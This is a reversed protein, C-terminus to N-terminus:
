FECVPKEREATIMQWVTLGFFILIGGYLLNRATHINALSNQPVEGLPNPWMTCVVATVAAIVGIFFCVTYVTNNLIADRHGKLQALVEQNPPACYGRCEPYRCVIHKMNAQTLDITMVEGCESCFIIAHVPDLALPNGKADKAKGMGFLLVDIAWLLVALGLIGTGVFLVTPSERGSTLPFRDVYSLLAMPLRQEGLEGMVGTIMRQRVKYVAERRVTELDPTSFPVVIRKATDPTIRDYADLDAAEADPAPPEEVAIGEPLEAYPVGDPNREAGVERPTKEYGLKKAVESKPIAETEALGEWFARNMAEFEEVEQPTPFPKLLLRYNKHAALRRVTERDGLIANEVRRVKVESYLPHPVPESWDGGQIPRMSVEQSVREAQFATAVPLERWGIWHPSGVLFVILGIVLLAVRIYGYVKQKLYFREQGILGGFVSLLFARGQYRNDPNTEGNGVRSLLRGDKDTMRGMGILFFDHIQPLLVMGVGLLFALAYAVVPTFDPSISTTPAFLLACTLIFGALKTAGMGMHGLYFRDLGLWGLLVNLLLATGQSKAPGAPQARSSRKAGGRSSRRSSVPPAPADAEESEEDEGGEEADDEPSEVEVEEEEGDAAEDETDQAEAAEEQDEDRIEDEDRAM